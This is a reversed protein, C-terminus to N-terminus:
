KTAASDRRWTPVYTTLFNRIDVDRDLTEYGCRQMEAIAAANTWRDVEMRYVAVYIGTRHIGAFCHVLIPRPYTVPDNLVELFKQIGIAGPPPTADPTFWPRPKIRVFKIEQQACFVEEWIDPVSGPQLDDSSGDNERLSVVTGFGYEHHLRALGQPSLQGSRYLVEPTVERFRRYHRDQASAYWMPVGVMSAILGLVLVWRYPPAM